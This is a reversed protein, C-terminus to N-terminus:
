VNDVTKKQRFAFRKKAWAHPYQYGRAKGLEVFDELTKCQWEERKRAVQAAKREAPSIEVLTGEVQKIERRV